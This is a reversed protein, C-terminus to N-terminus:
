VTHTVCQRGEGKGSEEEECPRETRGRREESREPKTVGEQEGGMEASVVREAEEVEVRKRLVEPNAEKIAVSVAVKVIPM